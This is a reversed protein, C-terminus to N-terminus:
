FDCPGTLQYVTSVVSLIHLHVVDDDSGTQCKFKSKVVKVLLIQDISYKLIQLAYFTSM